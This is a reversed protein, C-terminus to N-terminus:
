KIEQVKRETIRKGKKMLNKGEMEEYLCIKHYISGGDKLM